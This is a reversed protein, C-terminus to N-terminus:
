VPPSSLATAAELEAPSLPFMGIVILLGVFVGVMQAVLLMAVQGPTLTVISRAISVQLWLGAITTAIIM